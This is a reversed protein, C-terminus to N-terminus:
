PIATSFEVLARPLHGKRPGIFTRKSTREKKKDEVQLVGLQQSCLWHVLGRTPQKPNFVRDAEVKRMLRPLDQTGLSEDGWPAPPGGEFTQM